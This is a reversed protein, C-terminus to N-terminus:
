QDIVINKSTAIQKWIGTSERFRSALQAPKIDVPLAGEVEMLALIEKTKAVENIERNFLEILSAPTGSPAFVIAWLDVSFGPAVSALPPLGPFAASPNRSTVGILRVRGSQVHPLISARATLMFDITGSALDMAAPAAGKYPIHKTQVKAADNLWETSLHLFTGVGSTGYTLENPKARAAAMLDAPNKFPSNANVAIVMPGESVMSIPILDKNIDFPIQRMTAIATVLSNTTFLLQSGDAPGKAVASSGILSSGGPRNDVIVTTKLRAALQPAMARALVDTSGGAPFPIILRVLPPVTVQQAMVAPALLAFASLVLALPRFKM